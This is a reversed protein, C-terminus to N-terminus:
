LGREAMFTLNPLDERFKEFVLEPSAADLGIVLVRRM